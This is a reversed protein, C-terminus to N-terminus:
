FDYDFTELDDRYVKKVLAQSKQNYYNRYDQHQSRNIHPLDKSGGLLDQIKYFDQDLNELKIIIDPLNGCFWSLQTEGGWYAHILHHSNNNTNNYLEEPTELVCHIWHDFGKNFINIMKSDDIISGVISDSQYPQTKFNIFSAGSILNTKYLNLRSKVLEGVYHYLSVLRSYPNRVFTFRLGLDPWLTKVWNYDPFKYMNQPIFDMLPAIEYDTLNTEVWSTFSTGGTRPIHHYTAPVNKFHIDM